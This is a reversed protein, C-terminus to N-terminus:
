KTLFAKLVLKLVLFFYTTNIIFCIITQVLMNIFTIHQYTFINNKRELVEKAKEVLQFLFYYSICKFTLDLIFIMGDNCWRGNNIPDQKFSFKQLDAYTEALLGTVFLGTGASDLSTMTKPAPPIKHRPSNIIIVPLSVVYVWVAQLCTELLSYIISYLIM